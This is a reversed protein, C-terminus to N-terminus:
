RFLVGATYGISTKCAISSHCKGPLAKIFRGRRLRLWLNSAREGISIDDIIFIFVVLGLTKETGTETLM